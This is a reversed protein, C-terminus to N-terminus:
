IPLTSRMTATRQGASERGGGSLRGFRDRQGQAGSRGVESKRSRVEPGMETKWIEAKLKKSFGHKDTNMRPQLKNGRRAGREGDKSIRHERKPM